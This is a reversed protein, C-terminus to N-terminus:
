RRRYEASRTLRMGSTSRAYVLAGVLGVYLRVVNRAGALEVLERGDADRECIGGRDGHVVVRALRIVDTQHDSESRGKKRVGPDIRLAAGFRRRVGPVRSRHVRRARWVGRGAHISGITSAGARSSRRVSHKGAM